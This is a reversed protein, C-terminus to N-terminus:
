ATRGAMEEMAQYRPMGARVQALMRLMEQKLAGDPCYAVVQILSGHLNAGAEICLTTLDLIFPFEKLMGKQRRRAVQQLHRFPLFACGAAAPIMLWWSLGAFLGQELTMFLAAGAMASVCQLALFEDSRYQDQWGAMELRRQLRLAVEKSMVRRLVPALALLWPRLCRLLLSAHEGDRHLNSQNEGSIFLPRLVFWVGAAISVGAMVSILWLIM